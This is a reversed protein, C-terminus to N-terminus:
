EFVARGLLGIGSYSLSAVSKAEKPPDLLVDYAIWFMSMPPGTDRGTGGVSQPKPGLRCEEVSIGKDENAVEAGTDADVKMYKIRHGTKRHAPQVLDERKGLHSAGNKLSRTFDILLL